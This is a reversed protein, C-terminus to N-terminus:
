RNARCMSQFESLEEPAGRLLAELGAQKLENDREYQEKM